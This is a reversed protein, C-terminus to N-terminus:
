QRAAVFDAEGEDLMLTYEFSVKHFRKAKHSDHLAFGIHYVKGPVIDKHNPKGPQLPRSLVVSWTGDKFEAEATTIVDDNEQREKLIYGDMASAASGQNLRAQWYELFYGDALLASLEDDSKYNTGGGKRSLKTRSRGLYKKLDQDDSASPMTNADDHCTGWCGAKVAAKVNPEGLMITIKSEYDPDMKEGATAPPATWELRVHLNSEDRAFKVNISVSGVNGEIPSPEVKEGSAILEGIDPEEEEHCDMCNKDKKFKKAGSHDKQTLAWEWSAQGPHFVPVDRGEVASWDIAWAINPICSIGGIIGILGLVKIVSKNVIGPVKKM